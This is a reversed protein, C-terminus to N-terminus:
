VTIPACVRDTKHTEIENIHAGHHWGIGSKNRRLRLLVPEPTKVWTKRRFETSSVTAKNASIKCHFLAVALDDMSWRTISAWPM